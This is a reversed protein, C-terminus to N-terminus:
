LIIGQEDGSRNQNELRYMLNEIIEIKQKYNRVIAALIKENDLNKSLEVKLTLYEEDLDDMFELFQEKDSESLAASQRIREVQLNVLSTYHMQIEHMQPTGTYEVSHENGPAGKFLVVALGVILLFSAAIRTARRNWIPITRANRDELRASIQAWMKARDPRQDDFQDGRERIYKEFEDM